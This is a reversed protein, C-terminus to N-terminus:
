RVYGLMNVNLTQTYLSQSNTQTHHGTYHVITLNDSGGICDEPGGQAHTVHPDWGVNHHAMMM